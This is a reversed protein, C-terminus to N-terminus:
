YTGRLVATGYFNKTIAFSSSAVNTMIMEVKIASSTTTSYQRFVLSTVNVDESTIPGLSINNEYLVIRGGSLAFKMPTSSGNADLGYLALAGSTVNFSSLASDIGTADKTERLIRDMSNIASTEIARVASVKRYSSVLATLTNVVGLLMLVLLALYVLTEVLSFGKKTKLSNKRM